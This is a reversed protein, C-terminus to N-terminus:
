WVQAPNINLHLDFEASVEVMDEFSSEEFSSDVVKIQTWEGVNGFKNYVQVVPSLILARFMPFFERRIRMQATVTDDRDFGLDKIFPHPSNNIMGLDESTTTWNWVDFLLFGYGGKSNLYRVYFPDCSSPVKMLKSETSPIAPTSRITNDVEMFFMSAPYGNWVPILDADRLIDGSGVTYAANRKGEEWGRVFTKNLYSVAETQTGNANAYYAVAISISQYNPIPDAYSTGPVYAYPLLGKMYPALDITLSGTQPLYLNMAPLAQVVDGSHSVNRTITLKILSNAPFNGTDLSFTVPIPNGVLFRNSSLGTVVLAM